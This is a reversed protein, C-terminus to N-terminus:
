APASKTATPGSAMGARRRIALSRSAGSVLSRARRQRAQTSPGCLAVRAAAAARTTARCFGAPLASASATPVPAAAAAPLVVGVAIREALRGPQDEPELSVVAVPAGGLGPANGCIATVRAAGDQALLVGEARAAGQGGLRAAGPVAAMEVSVLPGAELLRFLDSEVLQRALDAVDGCACADTKCARGPRAPAGIWLTATSRFGGSLGNTFSIRDVGEGARRWGLPLRVRVGEPAARSSGLMPLFPAAVAGLALAAAAAGVSSALRRSAGDALSTRPDIFLGLALGVALGGAHGWNDVGSSGLGAAFLALLWPLLRLGFHNRLSGSVGRRWGFSASAGLVGFAMGSAGLSVSDAGLASALTTGLATFLLAALYDAPQVARELAGGVNWLVFANCAFHLVDKHLLNAALLRWTEGRDFILSTAKAGWALLSALSLGASFGGAVGLVTVCSALFVVTIWPVGEVSVAAGWAPEALLLAGPSARASTELLSGEETWGAMQRLISVPDDYPM